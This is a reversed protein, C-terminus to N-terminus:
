VSLLGNLEVLTSHKGGTGHVTDTHCSFLTESPFGNALPISVRIGLDDYEVPYGYRMLDAILCANFKDLTTSNYRRPTALMDLLFA